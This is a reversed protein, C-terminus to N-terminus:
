YSVVSLQDYAIYASEDLALSEINQQTGGFFQNLTHGVNFEHKDALARFTFGQLSERSSETDMVM